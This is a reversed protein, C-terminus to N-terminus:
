TQHSIEIWWFWTSDGVTTNPQHFLGYAINEAETNIDAAKM